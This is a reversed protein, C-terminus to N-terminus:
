VDVCSCVKKSEENESPEPPVAKKSYKKNAALSGKSMNPMRRADSFHFGNQLLQLDTHTHLTNLSLSHSHTTAFQMQIINCSHGDLWLTSLRGLFILETSLVRARREVMCCARGGEGESAPLREHPQLVETRPRRLDSARVTAPQLLFPVGHEKGRGSYHCSAPTDRYTVWCNAVARVCVCVYVCM